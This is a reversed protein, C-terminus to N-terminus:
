RWSTAQNQAQLTEMDDRWTQQTWFPIQFRPHSSFFKVLSFESRARRECATQESIQKIKSIEDCMYVSCVDPFLLWLQSINQELIAEESSSHHKREWFLFRICWHFHCGSKAQLYLQLRHNWKKVICLSGGSACASPWASFSGADHSNSNSPHFKNRARARSLCPVWNKCSKQRITAESQVCSPCRM